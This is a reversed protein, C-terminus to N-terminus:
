RFARHAKRRMPVKTVRRSARPITRRASRPTCTHGCTHIHTSPTTHACENCTWLSKPHDQTRQTSHLRSHMHAHTYITIHTYIYDQIPVKTVRRSARPNTRRASRPTCTHICTHVHTYISHRLSMPHRLNCTMKRLLAV